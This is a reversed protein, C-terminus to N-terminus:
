IEEGAPIDIVAYPDGDPEPAAGYTFALAHPASAVDVALRVVRPNGAEDFPAFQAERAADPEDWAFAGWNSLGLRAAEQEVTYGPALAGQAMCSHLIEGSPLDYFVRRRFM